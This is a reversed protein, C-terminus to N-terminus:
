RCLILFICVLILIFWIIMIARSSVIQFRMRKQQNRFFKREWESNQYRILLEDYDKKLKDYTSKPVRNPWTYPPMINYLLYLLRILKGRVKHLSPISGGGTLMTVDVVSIGGCLNSPAPSDRGWYLVLLNYIKLVPKNIGMLSRWM